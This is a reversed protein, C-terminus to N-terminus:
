HSHQLKILRGGEKDELVYINGMSDQEVERVRKGWEYREAETVNWKGDDDKNFAVRVLAKSSLGGIFGNGAWDSFLDGKYIIFGAPSIAPVWALEPSKFVPYDEHNPIKVGSYHDGQSVMPYGYNRGREIINLEDGHRPGMEHSWLNGQEDFDIGLPNRHGLTWIQATVSGNGYFPNDKPVSGDANLRVIKGLNMAMNQAPTFKQREGSTIFLYGDPSFVMRHSYHGNGTVKPSQRWIIERNSLSAASNTINLTAREIVAGSFADDKPDREIYSIYITNNTAFEPHVIVDGLGGQGRATVDPVNSVTFRKQQDADLLWLTGAKETVLSHGDPLFTMAWPHDFSSKVHGVLSTGESGKMEVQASSGFQAAAVFSAALLTVLLAIKQRIIRKQM